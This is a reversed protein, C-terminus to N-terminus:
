YRGYESDDLRIEDSPAYHPESYQIKEQRSARRTVSEREGFGSFSDKLQFRNIQSGLRKARSSLDQAAAALEEASATNQQTVADIQGLGEHIQGVGQSQEKSAAAIEGILDTVKTVGEVIQKLASSTDTAIELGNEVKKGSGAILESTERAAKASRAALNRVEDAVVAFGKGHKGARAAEV